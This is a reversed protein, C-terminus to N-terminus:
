RERERERGKGKGAHAGAEEGRACGLAAARAGPPAVGLVRARPRGPGRPAAGQGRRPVAQVTGARAARGRSRV